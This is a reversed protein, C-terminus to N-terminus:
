RTQSGTPRQYAQWMREAIADRRENMRRAAPTLTPPQHSQSEQSSTASNSASDSDREGSIIMPIPEKEYLRIFNWLATIALVIDTQITIPFALPINLIKFKKKLAEFVREIVNRAMAHRLNFLKYKDEPRCAAQAQEKLHYRVSQYPIMCLDTSAYGGDGLYYQGPPAEFGHRAIADNYVGADNSSGEWGPLVYTFNMSFDCVAFVNQSLFGKRNRYRPHDVTRVHVPIHTGDFASICDEFWPWFKNTAGKGRIYPHPDQRELPLKVIADHLSQFAKLVEHFCRSVTDGSHCWREQVARNSEGHAFTWIFMAVKEDLTMSRTTKLATNNQLWDCLEKFTSAEMRLVDYVRGAHGGLLEKLYSYGSLPSTRCPIPKRTATDLVEQVAIHIIGDQEQWHQERATDSATVTSPMATSPRTTPHPFVDLVQLNELTSDSPKRSPKRSGSSTLSPTM